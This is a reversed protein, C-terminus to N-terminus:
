RCRLLAKEGKKMTMFGQDWGKIVEGKGITFKFPKGRKRSSDFETGDDLTGVYHASVEMGTEPSAEGAGEGTIKKFLGGDTSRWNLSHSCFQKLRLGASSSIDVYGTLDFDAM